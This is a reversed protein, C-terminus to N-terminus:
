CSPEEEQRPTPRRAHRTWRHAALAVVIGAGAALLMPLLSPARDVDTSGVDTSGVATTEIPASPTNVSTPAAPVATAATAAPLHPQTEEDHHHLDAATPIVPQPRAADPAADFYVHGDHHFTFHYTIPLTGVTVGLGRLGGEAVAVATIEDVPRTCLLQYLGPAASWTCEGRADTTCFVDMGWLVATEEPFQELVLREGSVATGESDRLRVTLSVAEVTEPASDQEQAGAGDVVVTLWVGLLCVICVLLGKRMANGRNRTMSYVPLPCALVSFGAGFVPADRGALGDDGKNMWRRGM